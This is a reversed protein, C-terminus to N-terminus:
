RRRLGRGLWGGVLLRIMQQLQRWLRGIATLQDAAVLTLVIWVTLVEIHGIQRNIFTLTAHLASVWPNGEAPILPWLWWAVALALNVVFVWWWYSVALSIAILGAYQLGGGLQEGVPTSTWNWGLLAATVVALLRLPWPLLTEALTPSRNPDPDYPIEFFDQRYQANL